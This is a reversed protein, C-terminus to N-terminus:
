IKDIDDLERDPNLGEAKTRFKPALRFHGCIEKIHKVANERAAAAPHQYKREGSVYFEGETLIINTLRDYDSFSQALVALLDRDSQWFDGRETLIKVLKRYYKRGETDMYPLNDYDYRVRKSGNIM